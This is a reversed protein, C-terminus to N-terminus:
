ATQRPDAQKGRILVGPLAGTPEGNEYIVQGAKITATIGDANQLFRKGGAPLDHVIHPTRLKLADFDIINIDAKLGEAILGRDHLSYLETPQKCLMHIADSLTIEQKDKVWKTLVYVNASTDCISGVHAGGDGLATVTHPHTLMEPIHESFNAAPIYVLNAGNNGLFYDYLWETPERGEREAIAAVSNDKEPLYEIPDEVTSVNRSVKDM